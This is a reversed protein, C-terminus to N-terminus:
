GELLRGEGAEEEGLDGQELRNIAAEVEQRRGFLTRDERYGKEALDKSPELEVFRAPHSYWSRDQTELAIKRELEAVKKFEHIEPFESKIRNKLLTERQNYDIGVEILTQNTTELVSYARLMKTPLLDRAESKHHGYMTAFFGSKMGLIASNLLEAEKVCAWTVEREFRMYDQLGLEPHDERVKATVAKTMAKYNSSAGVRNQWWEKQAAHLMEELKRCRQIVRLRPIPDYGTVLTMTTDQDLLYQERTEGKADVYTSSECYWGLDPATSLRKIMARIDRLVHDHRKGALDAIERSTMTKFTSILQMNMFMVLRLFALVSVSTATPPLISRGNESDASAKFGM